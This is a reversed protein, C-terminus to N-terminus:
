ENANNNHYYEICRTTEASGGQHLMKPPQWATALLSQAQASMASELQAIRQLRAQEAQQQAQLDAQTFQTTATAPAAALQVGQQQQVQQQLKAFDETTPLTAQVAAGGPISVPTTLTQYEQMLDGAANPSLLGAAVARKLENAYETPTANNEQMNLLRNAEAKVDHLKQYSALLKQEEDPTMKGAKVLADLEKKYDDPSVDKNQMDLLKAAETQSLRGQKVMNAIDSGASTEAGAVLSKLAGLAGSAERSAKYEALLKAAEAPTLKGEAVLRQLEAAYQDVPVNRNQLDALDNAVEATIAGSQAAQKLGFINQKTAERAKQQAYQALLQAAVKPSIKGDKVLQNLEAAYDAPTAGNKQLMLLQNAADIPLLGSKILTDMLKGSEALLTNQHQKKYQALLERAQEPTLKGQKVLADLAAAYEDVSVNKNALDILKNADDQSLKGANVLNNIDNTVNASEDNPCMVTCNSSSQTQEPVNLLTPVASGGTMQAQQAAQANREQLAKYYEPSLNNGGPISQEAATPAAVKSPGINNASGSLFRAAFLILGCIVVVSALILFIRSKTDTASFLKFSPLKLAM